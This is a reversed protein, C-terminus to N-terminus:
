ITFDITLSFIVARATCTDSGNDADRGVMLFFPRGVAIGTTDLAITSTKLVGQTSPGADASSLAITNYVAADTDTTGITAPMVAGKWVVNGPSAGEAYWQIRLTLGSLWAAPVELPGWGWHQDTSPDFGLFLGTFKATNATQTGSSTMPVLQAPNNGSGSGDPPCDGVPALMIQATGM